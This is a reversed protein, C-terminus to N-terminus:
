CFCTFVLIFLAITGYTDWPVELSSLLDTGLIIGGVVCWIVLAAVVSFRFVSRPRFVLGVHMPHEPQAQVTHVALVSHFEVTSASQGRLLRERRVRQRGGNTRRKM